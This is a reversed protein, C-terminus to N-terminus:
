NIYHCEINKSNLGNKCWQCICTCSVSYYEAAKSLSDFTIEGIKVAKRHKIGVNKAVISNKMPNNISMRNRQDKDKMPNNISMRKRQLADKMPNERSMRDRLERTWEFKVGGNGGYVRNCVAQGCKHLEKIRNSEFEFAECEDDFFKIKRKGCKFRKLFEKFLISRRYLQNIRKGYGKGVYFIEGTDEIFYEYVYFM